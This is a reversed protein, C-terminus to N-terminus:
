PTWALGLGAFPALTPTESLLASTGDTQEVAFRREVLPFTLGAELEIAFSPAVTLSGRLLTGLSWWSRTVSRPDRLDDGPHAHLWGSQALVCPAVALENMLPVLIPCASLAVGSLHTSVREATQFLDDRVHLLSLEVSPTLLGELPYALRAFLSAGFSTGSSAIRTTLAELGFTWLLSPESTASPAAAPQNGTLSPVGAPSAPTSERARKPDRPAATAESTSTSARPDAGSRTTPSPATPSPSPARSSPARPDEKAPTFRANPDLALAATLALADVVEDCSVGDVVRTARGRENASSLEGHVRGKSRTLRVRLDRAREGEQALRVRNTRTRVGSYFADQSSCGPPAEFEVRLPIEARPVEPQRPDAPLPQGLLLFVLLHVALTM